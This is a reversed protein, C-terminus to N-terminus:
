INRFYCTLFVLFVTMPAPRKFHSCIMCSIFSLQFVSVKRPNRSIFEFTEGKKVSNRDLKLLSARIVLHVHCSTAEDTM